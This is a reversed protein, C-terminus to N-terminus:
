AQGGMTQWIDLVDRLIATATEDGGAGRGVLTVDGSSRMSVTMANLNKPVNLPSGVPVERLGVAIREGIEAILKVRRGGKAAAAIRERKIGRIGEVAVDDLTAPRELVWNSLIVAKTAADIGDIDASPDTEAYGLRIAEALADDFAEGSEHMRWLIFNTTGNLIARVGTIEDGRACERALALMPTGGGVTGSFRFQVRNYRALEFLAPMAVALPAKNVTVVHKGSRFAFRIHDIAAQPASLRSPTSEILADADSEGILDDVSTTTDGYGGVAAVTGHERKAVLLETPSLGRESVAAGGSDRVGVLRPAMGCARYLAGGREDLLRVFAQGVVGFGVLFLRM